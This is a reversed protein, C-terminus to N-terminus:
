ETEGHAEFWVIVREVVGSAPAITRAAKHGKATLTYTAHYHNEDNARVYGLKLLNRFTSMNFSNRHAFSIGLDSYHVPRKYSGNKSLWSLVHQQANTLKM